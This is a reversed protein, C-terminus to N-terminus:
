HVIYVFKLKKNLLLETNDTVVGVVVAVVM